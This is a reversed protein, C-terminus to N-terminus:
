LKIDASAYEIGEVSPNNRETRTLKAHIRILKPRIYRQIIIFPLNGIVVYLIYLLLAWPSEWVFLCGIGMVALIKHIFEAICTERIMLLTQESTMKESFKKSPMMRPLIKSMDPVKHIWKQIKIRKYVNGNKEFAYGRYPFMDHCFWKKPLIRGIFFGLIGIIAFYFLCYLLQM